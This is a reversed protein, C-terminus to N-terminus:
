KWEKERVWDKVCMCGAETKMASPVLSHYANFPLHCIRNWIRHLPFIRMVCKIYLWQLNAVLSCTHFSNINWDDAHYLQVCFLPLTM